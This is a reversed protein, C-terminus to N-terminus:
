DMESSTELLPSEFNLPENAMNVENQRIFSSMHRGDPQYLHQCLSTTISYRLLTQKLLLPQSRPIRQLLKHTM